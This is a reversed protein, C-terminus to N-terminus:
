HQIVVSKCDEVEVETISKELKEKAIVLDRELIDIGYKEKKLNIGKELESVFISLECTKDSCKQLKISTRKSPYRIVSVGYPLTLEEVISRDLYYAKRAEELAKRKSDFAKKIRYINPELGFKKSKRKVLYLKTM